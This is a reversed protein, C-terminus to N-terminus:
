SPETRMPLNPEIIEAIPWIVGLEFGRVGDSELLLLRLDLRLSAGLQREPDVLAAVEAAAYFSLEHGAAAARALLARSYRRRRGNRDGRM